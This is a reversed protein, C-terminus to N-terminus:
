LKRVRRVLRPGAASVDKGWTPPWEVTVTEIDGLDFRDTALRGAEDGDCVTYVTSFPRLWPRAFSASTGAGSPLSLAPLGQSLLYLADFEGETVFVHRPRSDKYLRWFLDHPYLSKYSHHTLSYYKIPRNSAAVKTPKLFRFKVNYTAGHTIHPITLAQGSWGIHASRIMEEPIRGLIYERAPSDAPLAWLNREYQQVVPLPLTPLEEGKAVQIDDHQNRELWDVAQRWSMGLYAQLLEIPDAIRGCAFCYAHDAYVKMSPNRDDHWKCVVQEGLLERMDVREKLENIRAFNRYKGTDRNM